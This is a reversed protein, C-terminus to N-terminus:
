KKVRGLSYITELYTKGQNKTMVLENNEAIKKLVNQYEKDENKDKSKEM